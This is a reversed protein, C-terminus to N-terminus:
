KPHMTNSMSRLYTLGTQNATEPTKFHPIPSFCNSLTTDFTKENRTELRYSYSGCYTQNELVGCKEIHTTIAKELNKM